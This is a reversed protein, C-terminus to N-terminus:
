HNPTLSGTQNWVKKKTMVQAVFTWSAWTLGNEVNVSQYSELSIFFAEICPTKVGIISSQLKPLGPLSGLGWKLLSPTMRENKWFLTAIPVSRPKCCKSPLLAHQLKPIPSPLLFFLKNVWESKYLGFLV